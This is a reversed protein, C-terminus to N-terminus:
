EIKVCVPQCVAVLVRIIFVMKKASFRFNANKLTQKSTRLMNSGYNM